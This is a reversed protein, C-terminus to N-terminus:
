SYVVKLKGKAIDSAHTGLQQPTPDRLENQRLHTGLSHNAGHQTPGAGGGKSPKFAFDAVALRQQIWEGVTLPVGPNATSFEKTTGDAAFVKAAETVMFDVASERGGVRLFETTITNKFQTASHAAKETTLETELEAVRAMVDPRAKLLHYEATDVGEFAALKATLDAANALAAKAADSDIGEYKAKLPRLEDLEKLLEINKNRFESLKATDPHGDATLTFKGTVGSKAYYERLPGPVQVLEDIVYKLIAM